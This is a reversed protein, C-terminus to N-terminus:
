YYTQFRQSSSFLLPSLCVSYRVSMGRDIGTPSLEGVLRTKGRSMSDSPDPTKSRAGSQTRLVPRKSRTPLSATRRFNSINRTQFQRLKPDQVSYRRLYPRARAAAAPDSLFSLCRSHSFMFIDVYYLFRILSKYCISM